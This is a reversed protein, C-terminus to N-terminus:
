NDKGKNAFSLTQNIVQDIDENSVRLDEYAVDTPLAFEMSNARLMNVQRIGHEVGQSDTLREDEKYADQLEDFSMVKLETTQEQGLEELIKKYLDEYSIYGTAVPYTKRHEGNELAGIAAEGVQSVTITSIGGSTVPMFSQDRLMDVFMSWYPRKGEMTGFIYPLRLVSVNMTGEGEYMTLKEQLIRTEIYAEEHYGHSILVENNQAFEVQYSGFLVFNKVGALRALRALRQSPLVNKEYFFKRAPKQPVTREDVGGAYVFSDCDALINIIEDDALNFINQIIFEVGDEEKFKLNEALDVIDCTKVKYGKKVAQTITNYGLFGAGGLVFIKKIDQM